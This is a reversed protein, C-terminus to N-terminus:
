KEWEVVGTGALLDYINKRQKNTLPFIIYLIALLNVTILIFTILSESFPSPRVMNWIAFHSIEWPLFKIISRCIARGIGIRRGDKKVVRINMKRKGITGGRNSSEMFIFYLMVPLTIICFGTLEAIFPSKSFLPLFFPRLIFSLLILIIGYGIIVLYDILFAYIRRRYPAVSHKKIKKEKLPELRSEGGM